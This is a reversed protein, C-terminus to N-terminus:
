SRIWNSPLVAELDAVTCTNVDYELLEDHSQFVFLGRFLKGELMLPFWYRDDMWM